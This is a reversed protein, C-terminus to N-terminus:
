DSESEAVKLNAYIELLQETTLDLHRKIRLYVERRGELLAHERPDVRWCTDDGRCFRTLDELVMEGAPSTFALQYVRKREQMIEYADL